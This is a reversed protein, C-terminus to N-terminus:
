NQNYHRKVMCLNFGWFARKWGNVSIIAPRDLIQDPCIHFSVRCRINHSARVWPGSGIQWHSVLIMEFGSHAGSGTPVRGQQCSTLMLRNGSWSEWNLSMDVNHNNVWEHGTLESTFLYLIVPGEYNLNLFLRDVWVYMSVINSLMFWLLQTWCIITLVGVCTWRCFFGPPLLGLLNEQLIPSTNSCYRNYISNLQPKIIGLILSNHKTYSFMFRLHKCVNGVDHEYCTLFLRNNIATEVMSWTEM